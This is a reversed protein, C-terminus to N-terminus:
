ASDPLQLAFDMKINTIIISYVGIGGSDSSTTVIIHDIWGSTQWSRKGHPTAMGASHISKIIKSKKLHANM